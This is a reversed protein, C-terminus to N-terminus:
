RFLDAPDAARIKRISLLASGTSIALGCFLPISLTLSDRLSMPIRTQSEVFWYLVFAVALAGVYGTLGLIVAQEVVISAVRLDTCGIAKLTAYEPLHDAIDSSLVQYFVILGVVFSIVVGMFFLVGIAKEGIWFRGEQSEIEDRSLVKVDSERLRTASRGSETVPLKSKLRKVVDEVREGDIVKILGLTPSDLAGGGFARAFNHHSLLIAGDSAFGTGMEFSGAIEFRQNNLEVPTRSKTPGFESRSRRDILLAGPKEMAELLRVQDRQDLGPIGKKFVRDSPFSAMVLIMRQKWSPESRSPRRVLTPATTETSSPDPGLSRWLGSRVYVPYASKVGPVAEASRIRTMPFSDPDALYLYHKSTIVIDFDLKDLVLTATRQTARFFGLQMFIVILSFGVGALAIGTRPLDNLLNRWAIATHRAM